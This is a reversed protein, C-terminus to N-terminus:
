CVYEMINNSISMATTIITATITIVMTAAFATSVGGTPIAMAISIVAGVVTAIISFILKGVPHIKYLSFLFIGLGILSGIGSYIMIASFIMLIGYKIRERESAANSEEIINNITATKNQIAALNHDKFTELSKLVSDTYEVMKKDLKGSKMMILNNNTMFIQDSNMYLIMDATKSNNKIISVLQETRTTLDPDSSNKTSYKIFNDVTKNQQQILNNVKTQFDFLQYKSYSNAIPSFEKQLAALKSLHGLIENNLNQESLSDTYINTQWVNTKKLFLLIFDNYYPPLSLLLASQSICNKFQILESDIKNKFNEDIYKNHIEIYNKFEPVMPNIEIKNNPHRYIYKKHRDNFIFTSPNIGNEFLQTPPAPVSKQKSLFLATTDGSRVLNKDLGNYPPLFTFLTSQESFPLQICLEVLDDCSFTKLINYIDVASKDKISFWFIKLLVNYAVISYVDTELYLKKNNAYEILQKYLDDQKNYDDFINKQQTFLLQKVFNHLLVKKKADDLSVMINQLDFPLSQFTMENLNKTNISCIELSFLMGCIIDIPLNNLFAKHHNQTNNLANYIGLISQMDAQVPIKIFTTSTISHKLLNAKIKKATSQYFVSNNGTESFLTITNNEAMFKFSDIDSRYIVNNLADKNLISLDIEKNNVVYIMDCDCINRAEDIITKFFPDYQDRAVTSNTGDTITNWWINLQVTDLLRKNYESTLVNSTLKNLNTLFYDVSFTITPNVSLINNIINKYSKFANVHEKNYPDFNLKNILDYLFNKKQTTMLKMFLDCQESPNLINVFQIQQNFTLQGWLQDQYITRILGLCDWLKKLVEISLLNIIKPKKNADIDNILRIYPRFVYLLFVMDECFKVCKDSNNNYINQLFNDFNFVSGSQTPLADNVQILYYFFRLKELPNFNNFINCQEEPKANVFNEYLYRNIFHNDTGDINNYSHDSLNNTNNTNNKIILM